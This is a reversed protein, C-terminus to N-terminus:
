DNKSYLIVDASMTNQGHSGYKPHRQADAAWIQFFDKEAHCLLLVKISDLIAAASSTM